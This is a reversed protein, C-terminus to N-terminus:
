ETYLEATNLANEIPPLWGWQNQFKRMVGCPLEPGLLLFKWNGTWGGLGRIIEAGGGVGTVNLHGGTGKFKGRFSTKHFHVGIVQTWSDKGGTNLARWTGRKPAM